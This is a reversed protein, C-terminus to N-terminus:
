RFAGAEGRESNLLSELPLISRNRLTNRSLAKYLPLYTSNEPNSARKNRYLLPPM